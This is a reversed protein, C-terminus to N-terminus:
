AKMWKGEKNKYWRRSEVCDPCPDKLTTQGLFSQGQQQGCNNCGNLEVLVGPEDSFDGCRYRRRHILLQFMNSGLSWTFPHFM